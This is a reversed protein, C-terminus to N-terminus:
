LKEKDLASNFTQGEDFRIERRIVKDRTKTNGSIEIRGIKYKAGEDIKLALKVQKTSDDPYLEPTVTVLAYGKESYLESISIMDKKLAAKSFPQGAAMSIRKRVVDDTFVKNGSLDISSVKYQDGESIPITIVMKKMDETLEIKPEGIVVKIYGNNLYLDRIKEIDADMREKQFYGSSSIFSFLWWEKTEM